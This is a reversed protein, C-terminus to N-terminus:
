APLDVLLCCAPRGPERTVVAHLGPTRDGQLLQVLRLPATAALHDVENGPAVTHVRAAQLAEAPLRGASAAALLAMDSKGPSGQAWGAVRALPARGAAAPALWLLAPGALVPGGVDGAYRQAFRETSWDFGGALMGDARGTVIQRCAHVIAELGSSWSVATLNPGRLEHVSAVIAATANPLGTAYWSPTIASFGGQGVAELCAQAQDMSGFLTGLSVGLRDRDAADAALAPLCAAAAQLVLRAKDPLLGVKRSRRDPLLREQPMSGDPDSVASAAHLIHIGEASLTM